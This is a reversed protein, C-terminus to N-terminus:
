SCLALSFFRLFHWVTLIAPCLFVFNRTAIGYRDSRLYCRADTPWVIWCCSRLFRSEPVSKKVNAPISSAKWMAHIVFLNMLVTFFSFVLLLVCITLMFIRYHNVFQELKELKQTCFQSAM